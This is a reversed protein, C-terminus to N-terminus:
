ASPSSTVSGNSRSAESEGELADVDAPSIKNLTQAADYLAEAVATPLSALTATDEATFLPNGSEDCAALAVLAARVWGKPPRKDKTEDICVREWKEREAATITRVYVDGVEPLHVKERRRTTALALLQERTLAM